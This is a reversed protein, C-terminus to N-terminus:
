GGTPGNGTTRVKVNTFYDALGLSHPGGNEQSRISTNSCRPQVTRTSNVDQVCALNDTKGGKKNQM